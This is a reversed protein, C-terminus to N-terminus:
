PCFSLDNIWNKIITVADSDIVETGLPPMRNGSNIDAELRLPLVSNPFDYTGTPNLIIPNILGMDGSMAQVNCINMDTLATTYRLDMDFSSPASPSHCYACNSHLYSKAREEHTASLDDLAVLKNELLATPITASLLGMQEYSLLQNSTSIGNEPFTYMRNLQLVEPGIARGTNATHCELCDQGSPYIWTQDGIPKTKATDLLVADVPNGNADYEWEYSYGLWGEPHYMLLRTEIYEGNLVFHKMLVSGVPFEFDGTATVNITTGDPIAFFRLKEANDTWLPNNVDYSIMASAAQTPLTPEVCGTESLNTAIQGAETGAYDPVIKWINNGKAETGPTPDLIYIDGTNSRAFGSITMSTNLINETVYQNGQSKSSFLEGSFRDAFLFSGYLFDLVGGRYVYGAVVNHVPSSFEYDYVPLTLGNQDCNPDLILNCQSGEMINWGYNNGNEILNIEARSNPGSDGVWVANIASDVSWYGPKRLGYVYIEPCSNANNVTEPDNCINNGSFPNNAPIAYPTGNDVDIRLMSGLLTTTDQAMGLTDNDSGGDGLSVLLYGNHDFDLNGGNNTLDPQNIKLIIEENWTNDVISFRSIISRLRTVDNGKVKIVEDMTYHVFLEGNNQYDPHFAMGRLGLEGGTDYRVINELNLFDTFTNTLTNNVFEVIKGQPLLAYWNLNDGPAQKMAIVEGLHPLEPFAQETTVTSPSLPLLNPAICTQNTPRPFTGVVPADVIITMTDRSSLDGDSVTLQFIYNGEQPLTVGTSLVTPQEIVVAVNQPEILEWLYSHPLGPLEDDTFTGTLTLQNEPLTTAQDLGANAVPAQNVPEVQIMVSQAATYETDSTSFEITFQGATRFTASTNLALPSSFDVNEAPANVVRWGSSLTNNPLGDDTVTATLSITNGVTTQSESYSIEVEPAQNVALKEQAIEEGGSGGCGAIALVIGFVFFNNISYQTFLNFNPLM